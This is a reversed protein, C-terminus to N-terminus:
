IHILSLHMIRLSNPNSVFSIYTTKDGFAKKFNPHVEGGDTNIVHSMNSRQVYHVKDYSCNISSIFIDPKIDDFTDYASGENPWYYSQIGEISRLSEYFYLPQTHENNLYNDVLIKM